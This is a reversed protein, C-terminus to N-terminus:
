TAGAQERGLRRLHVGICTQPLVKRRRYCYFVVGMFVFQLLHLGLGVALPQRTEMVVQRAVHSVFVILAFWLVMNGYAHFQQDYQSHGLSRALRHMVNTSRAQILEGALYRDLDEALAEASAYRHRPDKSLCKLCITELDREVKPNLLRPPAPDRELVQLLTDLPTEARFPPRATLLEYLLAGLGYIDCAPGLDKRGSAQEPAM